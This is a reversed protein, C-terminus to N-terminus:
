HQEWAGKDDETVEVTMRKHRKFEWRSRKEREKREQVEWLKLVALVASCYAAHSESLWLGPHVYDTKELGQSGSENHEVMCFISEGLFTSGLNFANNVQLISFRAQIM